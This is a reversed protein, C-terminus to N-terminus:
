VANLILDVIRQSVNKEGYVPPFQLSSVDATLAQTFAVKDLANVGILTNCGNEVTEVWETTDRITICPKKLFYAEKQLGVETLVYTSDKPLKVM